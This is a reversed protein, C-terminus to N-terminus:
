KESGELLLRDGEKLDGTVVEAVTSDVLGLTLPVVSPKRTGNKVKVEGNLIAAVPVLLVNEKESISIAVDATMGPLIAKPLSSINIRVLFNSENSYVSQIKGEFTENRLSEFSIKAIQDKKVRVAGKQDLSVLLYRDTLDTLTLLNSQQFITEGVKVPLATVTGSFPATFLAGQDLEMLKQGATVGDGEKVFIQKVTSTVGTKVSFSKSATVTGIGYISETITGRQLPPTLREEKATRNKLKFGILVMVILLVLILWPTKSTKKSM